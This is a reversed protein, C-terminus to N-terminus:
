KEGPAFFAADHKWVRETVEREVDVYMYNNSTLDASRVVGNADVYSGGGYAGTPVYEAKRVKKTQEGKDEISFLVTSAGITRAFDELAGEGADGQQEFESRGLLVLGPGANGKSVEEARSPVLKVPADPALANLRAGQYHEAWPGSCGGLVGLV